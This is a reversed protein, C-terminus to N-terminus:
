KFNYNLTYNIKGYDDDACNEEWNTVVKDSMKTLDKLLSPNIVRKLVTMSNPTGEIELYHHSEITFEGIKLDTYLEDDSVREKVIRRIESEVHADM